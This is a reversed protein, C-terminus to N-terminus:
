RSYYVNILHLWYSNTVRTNEKIKGSNSEILLM